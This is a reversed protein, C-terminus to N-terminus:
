FQFYIFPIRQIVGLNMIALVLAAYAAWRLPLMPIALLRPPEGKAQFHEAILMFVTAGATIALQSANQNLAGLEGLIVGPNFVYYMLDPMKQFVYVADKLSNARFFVWGICVLVFIFGVQLAHHIRPARDLKAGRVFAARLERTAHSAIYYAAHLLGWIVFTWNAGHWLGSVGFVILLNVYMRSIKVRSGGLPIYVYDRFWTSLSIHWRHWFDAISTAFYPRDFNTMLRYGLIRAAGIAIDSYGSFDCYIQFAFAITAVVLILPTAGTPDHYVPDVILALRDAVVVKKFMGWLMYRLGLVARAYDFDYNGRLQPLFRDSREIPGAVLQPFFAVYLAFIGAHRQPPHTGKFVEITYSLTQFTYFSIGVPLVVDLDPATYESGLWALVAGLSENFFNFYKFTFLLGLNCGLSALLAGIRIRRRDTKGMVFGAAYDVATSAFILVLYEPKWAAYFYYSAALLLVWRWRYPLAFYLACVCPFFVLFEVSNFLM